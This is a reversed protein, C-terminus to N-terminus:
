RDAAPAGKGGGGGGCGGLDEATRADEGGEKPKAAMAALPIPTAGAQAVMGM